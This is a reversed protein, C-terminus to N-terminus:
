SRCTGVVGLDLDSTGCMNGCFCNGHFSNWSWPPEVQKGYSCSCTGRIHHHLLLLLSRLDVLIGDHDHDHDHDNDFDLSTQVVVELLMEETGM